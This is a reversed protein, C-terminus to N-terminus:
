YMKEFFRTTNDELNKMTYSPSPFPLLSNSSIPYVASIGLQKGYLTLTKRNNAFLLMPLFDQFHKNRMRRLDVRKVLKWKGFSPSLSSHYEEENDWLSFHSCVHTKCGCDAVPQIAFHEIRSWALKRVEAKQCSLKHTHSSVCFFSELDFCHVYRLM